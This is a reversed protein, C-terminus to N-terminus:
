LSPSAAKLSQKATRCGVTRDPLLNTVSSSLCAMKESNTIHCITCFEVYLIRGLLLIEQYQSVVSFVALNNM